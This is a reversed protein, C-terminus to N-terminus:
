ATGRENFTIPRAEMFNMVDPLRYRISRKSVKLYPIGRRLHRDNRLTALARGTISAVESENLFPKKILENAPAIEVRRKRVAVREQNM